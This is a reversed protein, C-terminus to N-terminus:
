QPEGPSENAPAPPTDAAPQDPAAANAASVGDAARMYACSLTFSGKLYGQKNPVPAVRLDRIELMAGRSELDAAFDVLAELTGEWSRVEIPLEFVGAVPVEEKLSRQLIRLGRRAASADMISLWYTEVQEGPVFVPMKDQVKEYRARWLPGAEVLERQLMARDELAAVARRRTRIADARRGALAGVGGFLVVGVTAALLVADHRSLPTM